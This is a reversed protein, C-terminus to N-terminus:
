LSKKVSGIVVSKDDLWCSFSAEMTENFYEDKRCYRYLDLLTELDDNSNSELSHLYRTYSEEKSFNNYLKKFFDEDFM